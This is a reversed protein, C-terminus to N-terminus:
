GARRVATKAALDGLRAQRDGTFLVSLLGVLYLAPLNDVIRLVTRIAVQGRSPPGGTAADVVRVGTLRKGLTQGGLAETAFYYLFIFAFFLLATGGEVSASAGGDGTETTGGISAAVIFAIVILGIDIFAAGIRRPLPSGDM